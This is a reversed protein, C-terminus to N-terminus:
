VNGLSAPPPVSDSHNIDDPIEWELERHPAMFHESHPYSVELKYRGDASTEANGISNETKSM